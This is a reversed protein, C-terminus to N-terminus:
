GAHDDDLDVDDPSVELFPPPVGDPLKLTAAAASAESDFAIAPHDSAAILQQRPRWVFYYLAAMGAAVACVGVFTGGLVVAISEGDEDVDEPAVDSGGPGEVPSATTTTPATSNNTANHGGGDGGPTSPVATPEGGPVISPPIVDKFWEEEDVYISITTSWSREQEGFLGEFCFSTGDSSFSMNSIVITSSWGYMAAPYLTTLTVGDAARPTTLYCRMFLVGSTHSTAPDFHWSSTAVSMVPQVYISTGQGQGGGGEAITTTTKPYIPFPDNVFYLANEIATVVMTTNPRITTSSSVFRM